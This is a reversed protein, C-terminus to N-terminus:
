RCGQQVRKKFPIEALQPNFAPQRDIRQLGVPAIEKTQLSVQFLMLEAYFIGNWWM